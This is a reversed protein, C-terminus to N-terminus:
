QKLLASLLVGNVALVTLDANTYDGRAVVDIGLYFIIGASMLATFVGVYKFVKNM